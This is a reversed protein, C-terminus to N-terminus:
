QLCFWKPQFEDIVLTLTGERNIAGKANAALCRTRKCIVCSDRATRLYSRCV